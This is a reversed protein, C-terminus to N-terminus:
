WSGIFGSSVRVSRVGSGKGARPAVRFGALYHQAMPSIISPGNAPDVGYASDPDVDGARARHANMAALADRNKLLYLAQQYTALVIKRPIIPDNNGDVDVERPFVLAQDGHFPPWGSAVYADVERTARQLAAEQTAVDAKIWADAEPGLDEEVLADAAAVTLYSNATASAAAAVLTM